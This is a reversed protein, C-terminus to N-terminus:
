GSRSWKQTLKKYLRTVFCDGKKRFPGEVNDKRMSKMRVPRTAFYMAFHEGYDLVSIEILKHKNHASTLKSYFTTYCSRRTQTRYLTFGQTEIQSIYDSLLRRDNFVEYEFTYREDNKKEELLKELRRSQHDHKEGFLVVYGEPTSYNRTTFGNKRLQRDIYPSRKELCKLLEPLTISQAHVSTCLFCLAPLLLSRNTKM